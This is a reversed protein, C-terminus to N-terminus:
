VGKKFAQLYNMSGKNKMPDDNINIGAVKNKDAYVQELISNKIKKKYWTALILSNYVQRLQAFNKGENVEKTLAPIVIERVINVGISHTDYRM